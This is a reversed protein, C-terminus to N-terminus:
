ILKASVVDYEIENKLDEKTRKANLEACHMNAMQQYQSIAIVESVTVGFDGSSEKVVAYAKSM